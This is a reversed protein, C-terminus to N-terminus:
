EQRKYVDLHTYSVAAGAVALGIVDNAGTDPNAKDSDTTTTSSDTSTDTTTEGTTEDTLPEASIVLSGLKNTEFTVTSRSSDYTQRKYVDGCDAAHNEPM